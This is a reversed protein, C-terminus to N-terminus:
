QKVTLQNTVHDASVVSAADAAVQQKEQDSKVPGKLTVQGGATIIKVNHAYMSLNKDAILARRVKATTMRDGKANTQNDATQGHDESKNQKTNDPAGAGSSQASACFSPLSCLVAVLAAAAPVTKPRKM